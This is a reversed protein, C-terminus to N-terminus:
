SFDVPYCLGRQRFHGHSHLRYNLILGAAGTKEGTKKRQARVAAHAIQPKPGPTAKTVGM